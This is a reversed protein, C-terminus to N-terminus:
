QKVMQKVLTGHPTSLRYFYVGAALADGNFEVTHDGGTLLGEVLTAVETGTENSVTFVVHGDSPTTFRISTRETFPNPSNQMLQLSGSSTESVGDTLKSGTISLIDNAADYEYTYSSLPLTAPGNLVSGDIGYRSGHTSCYIYGRAKTYAQVTSGQHTCIATLISFTYPGTGTCTIVIPKTNNPTPPRYIVSGDIAKLAPYTSLFNKIQITGLIGNDIGGMAFVKSGCACVMPAAATVLTAGLAQKM